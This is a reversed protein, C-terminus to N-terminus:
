PHADIVFEAPKHVDSKELIPLLAGANWVELFPGVIKPDFQTGTCRKIESIAAEPDMGKRYPRTSTMADFADSVALLRGEIPIAEGALGKPYGKGDYREHHFLVYPLLAELFDNGRLIQEGIEPHAKMLEFEEVTLKGAKNLVADPVGIKGVDHLHGGLELVTIREKPWGLQEATKIAYETVRDAHGGRYQDRKEIAKAFIIVVAKQSQLRKEIQRQENLLSKKLDEAYRMLQEYAKELETAKIKERKVLVKLDRLFFALQTGSYGFEQRLYKELEKDVFTPEVREEM